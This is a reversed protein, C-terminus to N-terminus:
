STWDILTVDPNPKQGEMINLIETIYEWAELSNFVVIAVQEILLEPAKETMCVLLM